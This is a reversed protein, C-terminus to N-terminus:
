FCLQLLEAKMKICGASGSQDNRVNTSVQFATYTKGRKYEVVAGRRDEAHM